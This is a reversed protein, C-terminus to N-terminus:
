TRYYKILKYTDIGRANSCLPARKVTRLDRSSFSDLLKANHTGHMMNCHTLSWRSASTKYDIKIECNKTQEVHKSRIQDKMMLLVTCYVTNCLM